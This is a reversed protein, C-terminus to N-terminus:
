ISYFGNLSCMSKYSFSEYWIWIILRMDIMFVKIAYVIMPHIQFPHCLLLIIIIRCLM